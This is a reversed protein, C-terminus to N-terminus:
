WGFTTSINLTIKGNPIPQNNIKYSANLTINKKSALYTGIQGLFNLYNTDGMTLITDNSIVIPQKIFSDNLVVNKISNDTTSFTINSLTAGTGTIGTFVITSSTGIVSGTVGNANNKNGSPTLIDALNASASNNVATNAAGIVNFPLSFSVTVPSPPPSPDDKKSCSVLVFMTVVLLSSFFALKKM